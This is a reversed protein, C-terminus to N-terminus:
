YSTKSPLVFTLAMFVMVMARDFNVIKKGSFVNVCSRLVNKASPLIRNIEIKPKQTDLGMFVILSSITQM